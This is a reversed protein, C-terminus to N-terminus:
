QTKVWASRSYAPDILWRSRSSSLLAWRTTSGLALRSAILRRGVLGSAGTLLPTSALKELGCPRRTLECGLDATPRGGQQRRERLACVRRSAPQRTRSKPSRALLLPLDGFLFPNNPSPKTPQSLLLVGARNLCPALTALWSWGHADLRAGARSAPACAPVSRPPSASREGSSRRRARVDGARLGAAASAATAGAVIARM